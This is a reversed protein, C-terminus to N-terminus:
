PLSPPFHPAPGSAPITPSPIVTPDCSVPSAWPDPPTHITRSHGRLEGEELDKSGMELLM